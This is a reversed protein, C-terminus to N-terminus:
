GGSLARYNGELDVVVLQSIAGAPAHQGDARGLHHVIEGHGELHEVGSEFRQGIPAPRRDDPDLRREDRTSADDVLLGVLRDVVAQEHLGLGDLAVEVEVPSTAVM